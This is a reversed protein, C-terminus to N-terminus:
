VENKFVSNALGEYMGRFRRVIFEALRRIPDNLITWFASFPWWVIWRVLDGFNDNMTPIVDSRTEIENGYGLYHNDRLYDAFGAFDRDEFTGDKRLVVQTKKIFKEKLERLTRKVGHLYSFWKLFSWMTGIAFYVVAWKIWLMPNAVISFGNVSAMTWVLAALGIGAFYNCDEETWYIMLGFFSVSDVWFWLTGFVFFAGLFAFIGTFFEGM